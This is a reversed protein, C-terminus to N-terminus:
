LTALERPIHVSIDCLILPTLHAYEGVTTTANKKGFPTNRTICNYVDSRNPAFQKLTLESTVLGLKSTIRIETPSLLQQGNKEWHMTPIPSGTASCTLRVMQRLEKILIFTPPKLVIMAPATFFFQCNNYYSQSRTM